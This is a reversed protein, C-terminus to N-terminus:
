KKGTNLSQQGYKGFLMIKRTIVSKDSSVTQEIFVGTSNRLTGMSPIVGMNASPMNTRNSLSSQAICRGILDYMKVVGPTQGKRVADASIPGKRQADTIDSIYSM